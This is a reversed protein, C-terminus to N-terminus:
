ITRMRKRTKSKWGQASKETRSSSSNTVESIIKENESTVEISWNKESQNRPNNTAVILGSLCLQVQANASQEM